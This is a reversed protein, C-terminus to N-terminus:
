SREATGADGRGTFPYLKLEASAKEEEDLSFDVVRAGIGPGLRRGDVEIAFLQVHQLVASPATM